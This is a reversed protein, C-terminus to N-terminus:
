QKVECVGAADAATFRVATAMWLGDAEDAASAGGNVDHWKATGAEVDSRDSWTAEALLTGGGGPTRTVVCDPLTYIPPSTDGAGLEVKITKHVGGAAPKETITVAM